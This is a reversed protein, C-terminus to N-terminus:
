LQNNEALAQREPNTFDEYESQMQAYLLSLKEDASALLANDADTKVINDTLNIVQVALDRYNPLTTYLFTGALALHEPHNVIEEFFGNAFDTVAAAQSHVPLLYQQIDKLQTVATYSEALEKQFFQQDNATLKTADFRAGKFNLGGGDFRGILDDKKKAEYNPATLTLAAGLLTLFLLLTISVGGVHGNGLFIKASIGYVVLITLGTLGGWLFINDLRRNFFPVVLFPVFFLMEPISFVLSVALLFLSGAVFIATALRSGDLFNKNLV